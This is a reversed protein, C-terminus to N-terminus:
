RISKRSKCKMGGRRGVVGRVWKGRRSIVPMHVHVCEIAIENKKM